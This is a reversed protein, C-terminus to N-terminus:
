MVYTSINCQWHYMVDRYLWLYMNSGDLIQPISSHGMCLMKSLSPSVTPYWDWDFSAVVRFWPHHVDFYTRNRRTWTEQIKVCIYGYQIMGYGNKNYYWGLSTPVASSCFPALILFLTLGVPDTKFHLNWGGGTKARNQSPFTSSETSEETNKEHKEWPFIGLSKWTRDSTRSVLAELVKGLKLCAPGPPDSWPYDHWPLHDHSVFMYLGDVDMLLIPIHTHIM